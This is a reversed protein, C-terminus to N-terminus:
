NLRMFVYRTDGTYRAAPGPQGDEGPVPNGEDDVEPVVLLYRADHTFSWPKTLKSVIFREMASMGALEDKAGLSRTAQIAGVLGGAGHFKVVAPVAYGSRRHVTAEATEVTLAPRYVLTGEEDSYFLWGHVEGGRAPPAQFVSLVFTRQDDVRYANIWTRAAEHPLVSSVRHEAYAFGSWSTSELEPEEDEGDEEDEAVAESGGAAPAADAPPAGPSAAETPAPREVTVKLSGRPVLVTTQYYGAGGFRATGGEPRLPQVDNDIDVDITTTGDTVHLALRRPTAEIMSDGLTAGLRDQEWSWRGRKRKVTVAFKDGAPTTLRVRLDADGDVGPGVNSIRLRGYLTGGGELTGRVLVQEMFDGAERNAKHSYALALDERTLEVRETQGPVFVRRPGCAPALASVGVLAAAVWGALRRAGM